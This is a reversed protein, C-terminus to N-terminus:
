PPRASIVSATRRRTASTCAVPAVRPLMSSACARAGVEVGGALGVGVQEDAGAALHADAVEQEPLDGVRLDPDGVHQPGVEPAAVQQLRHGVVLLALAPVAPDGGSSRALQPRRSRPRGRGAPHAGGGDRQRQEEGAQEEPGGSARRRGDHGRGSREPQPLEEASSAAPPMAGQADGANTHQRRTKTSTARGTAQRRGAQRQGITASTAQGGESSRAPSMAAVTGAAAACGGRPRRGPRAQAARMAARRTSSGASAPATAPRQQEEGDDHGRVGDGEEHAAREAPVLQGGRMEGPLVTSPRAPPRAPPTAPRAPRGRPEAQRPSGARGRRDHEPQTTAARPM